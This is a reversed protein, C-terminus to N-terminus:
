FSSLMLREEGEREISWRAMGRSLMKKACPTIAHASLRRGRTTLTRTIM